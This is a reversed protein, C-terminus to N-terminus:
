EIQLCVIMNGRVGIIVKDEFVVPSAEITYGLNLSSLTKGTQADILWVNGGDDAQILYANGLSDYVATPSSWTYSKLKHSWLEEGTAKNLAVILGSKEKYAHALSFIVRDSISEKGLAPTALLGGNIVEPESISFCPYTREWVVKGTFGNLKRLHAYGKSGQKDVECGTYVFPTDREVEVVLTADVDDESEFTWIPKMTRTDVAQILGGNDAFFAINKYFAVSNEIGQRKPKKHKYRYKVVQPSISIKKSSASFATNLKVAYFLGNEGGIFLVDALRNVIGSGDFAGWLRYALPDVGNIFYLLKGDILSFIRYGIAGEEPIGQGVYLLPYGRPDVSLTGKIPNRINLSPRTEEGTELDLFYVHGDLSAQIVETFNPKSKFKPKLNMLAKISDPWRIIAAQGTWGAGGGWSKKEKSHPTGWTTYFTWLKRLKKPAPKCRGFAPADRYHSGRFTLIGEVLSYKEPFPPATYLFTTDAPKGNM